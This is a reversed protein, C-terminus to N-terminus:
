AFITKMRIHSFLQERSMDFIVDGNLFRVCGDEPFDPMYFWQRFSAHDVVWSPISVSVDNVIVRHNATATRRTHNAALANSPMVVHRPERVKGASSSSRRTAATVSM